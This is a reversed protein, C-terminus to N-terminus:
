NAQSATKPALHEAVWTQLDEIRYRVMRPSIAVFRPGGGRVRRSELFRATLGLLAAAQKTTLLVDHSDVKRASEPSYHM